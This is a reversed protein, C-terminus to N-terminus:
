LSRRAMNFNSRPDDPPVLREDGFFFFTRSWDLRARQEPAALLAYTKEPTSGGALALLFRERAHLAENAAQILCNVAAAALREADPFVRLECLYSANSM